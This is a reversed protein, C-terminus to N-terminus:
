SKLTFSFKSGKGPESELWIKGGQAEIFEKSIALGLGTGTKTSEPVQFYRDFIKNKYKSDIGKGFDQVSFTVTDNQEIAQIVIKSKESSYRVANSLLNLLVWATKEKDANIAPMNESYNIEFLIQKQSAQFQIASIAYDIIQKPQTKQITLEIKGTEIQTLNLLESTIKLLREADEKINQILQKQEENTEGIRSDELLQSSMKISSIPTKLEHSVTAIFNTKATDLEKFPTINKLIIVQGIMEKDNMVDFNEKTFYKEKEDSTVILDKSSSTNNLIQHLLDSKIAIDTAQKNQIDSEKLGLLKEAVSNVFLINKKEDLGIIADNMQNIIIEIRKKEFMIKALNSHEYEDLKKAMANFAEALEGFEDNSEFNLRQNYNKNAIQKISETLKSIPNAIYGPFNIIFSFAILLCFTGIVTLITFVRNAKAQVQENKKTIAQMNIDMVQYLKERIINSEILSFGTKFSEFLKRIEQTIKKEGSETINLEQKKLIEEFQAISELRKPEMEDLLKMMLRVHQVSQYNDKLINESQHAIDQIYYSGVGGSLIILSFLFILGLSLKTKIRM